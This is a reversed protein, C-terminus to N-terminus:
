RIHILVKTFLFDLLLIHKRNISRPHRPDGKCITIYKLICTLASEVSATIMQSFYSDFEPFIRVQCQDRFFQSTDAPDDAISLMEQLLEGCLDDLDNFAQERFKEAEGYSPDMYKSVLEKKIKHHIWLFNQLRRIEVINLQKNTFPENWNATSEFYEALAVADYKYVTNNETVIHFNNLQPDIDEM